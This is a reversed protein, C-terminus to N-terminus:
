RGCLHSDFWALLPLALNPPAGDQAFHLEEYSDWHSVIPSVFNGLM